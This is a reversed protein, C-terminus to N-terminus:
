GHRFPHYDATGGQHWKGILGTTYGANQLSEAITIERLLCVLALTNMSQVSLISNMVLALRFEGM